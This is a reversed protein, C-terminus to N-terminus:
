GSIRYWFKSLLDVAEKTPPIDLLARDIEEQAIEINDIRLDIEGIPSDLWGDEMALQQMAVENAIGYFFLKRFIKVSKGCIYRFLLNFAWASSTCRSYDLRLNYKELLKIGRKSVETQSGLVEHSTIRWDDLIEQFENVLNICLDRLESDEPLTEIYMPADLENYFERVLGLLQCGHDTLYERAVTIRSSPHPPLGHRQRLLNIEILLDENGTTNFEKELNRLATDANRRYYM